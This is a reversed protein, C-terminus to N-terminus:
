RRRHDEGRARGAVRSWWRFRGWTRSRRPQHIRALAQENRKVRIVGFKRISQPTLGVHGMVPIEADVIKAIAAAAGAVGRAQGHSGGPHALGRKRPGARSDRSVVHVAMDAIVLLRKAGQPTVMRAHYIMEDIRSVTLLNDHGVGCWWSGLSDGPSSATSAALDLLRAMSYDYATLVALKRGESKAALFDPVTVPREAAEPPRQQEM